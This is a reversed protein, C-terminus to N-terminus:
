YEDEDEINRVKAHQQIRLEKQSKPVVAENQKQGLHVSTRGADSAQIQRVFDIKLKSEVQGKSVM